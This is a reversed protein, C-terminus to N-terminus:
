NLKALEKAVVKGSIISPPVGPGPVTLQGTYFLNKLKKSKISPKLIHTQLLTNALGYANGKFANYDEKFNNHAYSRNYIIHDRISEGTHKELRDMVDTFYKDRTEQTDELGSAVPVLIFLNEMGEPATKDTKSTASVYFLPKSPWQPDEYIEHAHIDFSEDFFLNHHKLNNIKKNVGLYFILGSPSMTRSDWYKQSYNAKDEPLVSKDFHEYDCSAVFYDADFDGSDTKLRYLTKDNIEVGKVTTDFKFEVGQEQCVKQMAKAIENMGGMPYWTGLGLDAYNMFSYLAPTNEATAGLFLVPFEMITCIYPNNFFKRIHKRISCLLDGKFPGTVFNIDIFELISLGPKHVLNDVAVGYKFKAEKLFKDLKPGSGKEYTELLAKLDDIMAPVDIFEKEFFVRYSPDLRKLEYFDSVRHGFDSFFDEFVNPLWYWSPGMDFLFGEETKFNRARGGVISNKELVTVQFGDKALYAATSLGSFGAGIVIAKKSM